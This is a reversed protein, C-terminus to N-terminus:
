FPLHSKFIDTNTLSWYSEITVIVSRMYLCLTLRVVAEPAKFFEAEPISEPGESRGNRVETEGRHCSFVTLCGSVHCCRIKRIVPLPAPSPPSVLFNTLQLRPPFLKRASLSIKKILGQELPSDTFTDGHGGFACFLHSPLGSARTSLTLSHCHYHSACLLHNSPAWHSDHWILQIQKCCLSIPTTNGCYSCHDFLKHTHM